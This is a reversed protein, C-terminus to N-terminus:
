VVAEAARLLERARTERINGEAVLRAAIRPVQEAGAGAALAVQQAHLAIHGARLSAYAHIGAEIARWDNGTAVAVASIGNMVGKNHTTARYPDIEALAQAEVIFGAIRRGKEIDRDLATASVRCTARVLRHDALNSLIRLNVRGRTLEAVRPALAEATTNLANAGMADRVDILIHVVLMPGVRRHEMVRTEIDRAGGGRAVIGPHLTDAMLLLEARAAAIAQVAQAMDPVDLVQIQAIMVPADSEAQFGGGARARRAACSAAAVISPEEVVMPVLVDHGNVQFNTAIGLPLGYVGVVNGLMQDANDVSLGTGGSLSATEADSLGVAEAIMAVRSSRTLEYFGPLRSTTIM